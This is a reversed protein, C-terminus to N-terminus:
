VPPSMKAPVDPSKKWLERRHCASRAQSACSLSGRPPRCKSSQRQGVLADRCGRLRGDVASGSRTSKKGGGTKPRFAKAPRSQRARRTSRPQGSLLPAVGVAHRSKPGSAIRGLSSLRRTPGPSCNEPREVRKGPEPDNVYCRFAATCFSNRSIASCAEAGHDSAVGDSPLNGSSM